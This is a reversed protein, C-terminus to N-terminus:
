YRQTNYGAMISSDTRITWRGRHTIYRAGIQAGVASNTANQTFRNPIETAGVFFTTDEVTNDSISTYRVGFYPELYSGNSLHQRFIRNMEFVDLKTETLFPDPVTPDTGASFFSGTVTTYEFQFGKDNDGFFGANYRNGWQYDTGRPHQAPAGPGIPDPRGISTYVRDYTFFFGSKAKRDAVDSIDLPAFMQTDYDFIFPQVLPDTAGQSEAQLPRFVPGPVETQATLNAAVMLSCVAISFLLTIRKSM